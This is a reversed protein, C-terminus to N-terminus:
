VNEVEVSSVGPLLIATDEYQVNTFVLGGLLLAGCAFSLIVKKM